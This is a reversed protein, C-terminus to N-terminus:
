CGVCAFLKLLLKLMSNYQLLKEVLDIHTVLDEQLLGLAHLADSNTILLSLLLLKLIDM